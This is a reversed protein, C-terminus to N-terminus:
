ENKKKGRRNNKHSFLHHGTIRAGGLKEKFAKLFATTRSYDLVILNNPLPSIQLIQHIPVGAPFLLNSFMNLLYRNGPANIM